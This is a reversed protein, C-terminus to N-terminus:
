RERRPLRLLTQRSGDAGVASTVTRTNNFPWATRAAHEAEEQTGYQETFSSGNIANTFRVEYVVPPDPVAV